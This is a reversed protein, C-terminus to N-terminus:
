ATVHEQEEIQPGTKKLSSVLGQFLGFLGDPCFRMVLILIGGYIIPEVVPDYNPILRLGVPIFIM